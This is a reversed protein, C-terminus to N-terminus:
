EDKQTIKAYNKRLKFEYRIVRKSTGFPSFIAKNVLDVLDTTATKRSVKLLDCYEKNSISGKEKVYKIAKKQRENLSFRNLYVESYIDRWITVVFSGMKQEFLPEPLNEEKCQKIMEITGSGAKEIYNTLYLLNAIIPNRPLSPHPKRLDEIKLQKPLEGPNWIEIRDVFVMVQIGANSYYDRHAVANVIAERIVFEPIEYPRKTTSKGLEPIVYRRLRDLVFGLSNDMQDFLSNGYIHYTEFPKEVETGHFHLCKVESQLFFKQPNKGFLVVAVNTMKGEKLLESHTLADRVSINEDLPYDRGVKAVKLFWKVKEEDIDDLSAEACIESDFYRKRKELIIRELEEPPVVVNETGVRKYAIGDLYYPKNDGEKIIVEIIRKEEIELAKIGPSAETKIRQRIKQSISRLTQDSITQGIIKGNKEVGFYIIGGKHNLFGCISKLARELQATSKKFELTESEEKEILEKINM